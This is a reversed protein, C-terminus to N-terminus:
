STLMRRLAAVTARSVKGGNRRYLEAVANDSLSGEFDRHRRRILGQVEADRRRRKGEKAQRAIAAGRAQAGRVREVTALTAEEHPALAGLRAAPVFINVFVPASPAATASQKRRTAM